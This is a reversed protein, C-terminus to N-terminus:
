ERHGAEHVPFGRTPMISGVATIAKRLRSFAAFTQIPTCDALQAARKTELQAQLVLRLTSPADSTQNTRRAAFTPRARLSVTM